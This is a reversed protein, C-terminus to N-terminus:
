ACKYVQYYQAPRRITQTANNIVIDLGGFANELCNMFVDIGALDRL